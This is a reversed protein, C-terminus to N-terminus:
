PRSLPAEDPSMSHYGATATFRVPRVSERRWLRWLLLSWVVGGAVKATFLGFAIALPFGPGHGFAVDMYAILGVFVLSDVAAAAINSGNVRELWEHARLRRYVLTDITATAAFALCSAVAIKGVDPGSGLALGAVYSVASGAVILAAMNRALQHRWADHLSDRAVLDLGIFAFANYLAVEPHDRGWEALTLNAAVIAGLYSAVLATRTM